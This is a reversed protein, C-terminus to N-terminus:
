AAGKVTILGESEMVELTRYQSRRMYFERDEETIESKVRRDIVDHCDSCGYGSCLDSSKYGGDHSPFHNLVTTEPNYNCHGVIQLTCEKGKASKRLQNSKITM